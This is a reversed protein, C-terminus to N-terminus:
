GSVYVPETIRGAEAADAASFVAVDLDTRYALEDALRAALRSALATLAVADPAGALVLGATLAPPAEDSRVDVLYAAEIAPESGLVAALRAVVGVPSETAAVRLGSSLRVEPRPSDPQRGEALAQLAAGDVVFATTGLDVVVAAHGEAVATACTDRGSVPVPRVDARWAAMSAPTTFAAVATAGSASVPTVLALESSKEALLGTVPDSAAEGLRATVPVFVRAGAFAAYVRVTSAPPGADQWDALAATLEAAAAGDDGAYAARGGVVTPSAPEDAAGLHGHATM